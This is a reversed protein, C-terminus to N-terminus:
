GNRVAWFPVGHRAVLARCAEDAADGAAQVFEMADRGVMRAGTERAHQDRELFRAREAQYAPHQRWELRAATLRAADAQRVESAIVAPPKGTNRSACTTGYHVLEGGDLEMAVTRRLGSKGCCDCSTVADTIGIARAM